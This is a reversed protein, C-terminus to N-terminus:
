RNELRGFTSDLARKLKEAAGTVAQEVSDGRHSVAVPKRGAPRAELLCRIDDQGMKHANIDSLHAEVRTVREGFRDLIAAVSDEVWRALEDRGEINSDTNFQIEM